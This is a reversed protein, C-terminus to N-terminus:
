PPSRVRLEDSIDLKHADFFLLILDARSAFWKVAEAYSIYIYTYIYTYTYTHIYTHACIHVCAVIV